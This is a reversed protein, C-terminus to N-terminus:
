RKYYYYTTGSEFKSRLNMKILWEKWETKDESDILKYGAKKALESFSYGLKQNDKLFRKVRNKCYRYEDKGQHKIIPKSVKQRDHKIEKQIDSVETKSLSCGKPPKTSLRDTKYLKGNINVFGKPVHKNQPTKMGLLQPNAKITRCNLNLPQKEKMYKELSKDHVALDEAKILIRNSEIKERIKGIEKNLKHIKESYKKLIKLDSTKSKYIYINKRQQKLERERNILQRNLKLEKEQLNRDKIEFLEVYKKNEEGKTTKVKIHIYKAMNLAIDEKTLVSNRRKGHYVVGCGLCYDAYSISYGM